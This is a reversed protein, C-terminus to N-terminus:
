VVRARVEDEGFGRRAISGLPLVVRISFKTPAPKLKLKAIGGDHKLLEHRSALWLLRDRRFM